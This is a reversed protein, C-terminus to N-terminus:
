PITSPPSALFEIEARLGDPRFDLVATGGLEKEALRGILKSGVGGAATGPPPSVPPGGIESWSLAARLSEGGALTRWAVEVRGQGSLAGYKMSNTALEHVIM